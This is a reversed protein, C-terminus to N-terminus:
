SEGLDLVAAREGLAQAHERIRGHHTFLLVQTREGLGALVELTARSRDDDFNVLIDDVIFPMSESRELHGELTALRLALFLQDRTGSSMGAVGVTRDNERVGMLQPHDDEDYHIQINAYAGLTLERFLERARVLVPAQHEKRYQEIERELIARALTFEMYREIDRRLRAQVEQAREASAAVQASGDMRDLEARAAARQNMHGTRREDLEDIERQLAELRGPLSDRDIEQAESELQAISTGGSAEMLQGEIQEVDNRADLLAKWRRLAGALGAEDACRAAEQLSTLESVAENIKGEANRANSAEDESQELLQSRLNEQQGVESLMGNLRYVTQEVPQEVLEPAHLRVFEDLEGEFVRKNEQMASIRDALKEIEDKKEFLQAVTDLRDLAETPRAEESVALGEVATVWEDRWRQLEQEALKVAERAEVLSTEGEEITEILEARRREVTDISELAEESRDLGPMLEEGSIEVSEALLRLEELLDSRRTGRGDQLGALEDAQGRAEAASIVLKQQRRLWALMERPLDPDIGLSEWAASWRAQTEAEREALATLVDVAKAAEGEARERQRLLDSQTAVRDADHRLNDATEDAASVSSEYVDPLLEAGAFAAIEDDIPEAEIWRRRVLRWGEDRRGRQVALDEESPVAGSRRLVDLQGDIDRIVEAAKQRREIIRERDKQLSDFERQFREITEMEPVALRALEDLGRSWHGLSALENECDAQLTNGRITFRQVQADVEGLGRAARIARRLGETNRVAPLDALEARNEEHKKAGVSLAGRASEVHTLLTGRESALDQIQRRRSLPARLEDLREVTLESGLAALMAALQGEM